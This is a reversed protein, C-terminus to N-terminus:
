VLMNKDDQLENQLKQMLVDHNLYSALVRDYALLEGRSLHKELKLRGEFLEEVIQDLKGMVYDGAPRRVDVIDEYFEPIETERNQEMEQMKKGIAGKGNSLRKQVALDLDIMSKMNYAPLEPMEDKGVQNFNYQEALTPKDQDFRKSM